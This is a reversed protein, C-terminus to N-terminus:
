LTRIEIVNNTYPLNRYRTSSTGLGGSMWLEWGWQPQNHSQKPSQPLPLWVCIQGILSWIKFNMNYLCFSNCLMSSNNTVTTVLPCARVYKIYMPITSAPLILVQLVNNLWQHYLIDNHHNWLTNNLNGFTKYSNEISAYYDLM